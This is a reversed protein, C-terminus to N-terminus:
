LGAQTQSGCGYGRIGAHALDDVEFAIRRRVLVAIWALEFLGRMRWAIAIRFPQRRQCPVAAGVVLVDEGSACALFCPM